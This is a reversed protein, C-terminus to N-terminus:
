SVHIYCSAWSPLQEGFEARQREIPTTKHVCAKLSSPRHNMLRRYGGNRSTKILSEMKIDYNMWKHWWETYMEQNGITSCDHQPSTLSGHFVSIWQNCDRGGPVWRANTRGSWCDKLTAKMRSIWAKRTLSLPNKFYQDM